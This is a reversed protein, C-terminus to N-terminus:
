EAQLISVGCRLYVFIKTEHLGYIIQNITLFNLFLNQSLSFLCQVLVHVCVSFNKKGDIENMVYEKKMCVVVCEKRRECMYVRGDRQIKHVYVSM